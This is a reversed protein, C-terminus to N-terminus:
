SRRTLMPPVLEITLSVGMFSLAMVSQPDCPKSRKYKHKELKCGVVVIVWRFCQM